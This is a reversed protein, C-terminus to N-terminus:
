VATGATLLEFLHKDPDDFYVGRGGFRRNIEGPQNRGPDAYTPVHGEILRQHALDFTADDVLFAIHMPRIDNSNDYDLTVSGVQVPQFHAVPEGPELGLIAALFRASAVKDTAPIILHNIEVTMTDGEGKINPNV